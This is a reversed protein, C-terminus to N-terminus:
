QRGRWSALFRPVTPEHRRESDETNLIDSAQEVRDSLAPDNRIFEVTDDGLDSVTAQTKISSDANSDKNEDLVTLKEGAHVEVSELKGQDNRFSAVATGELVVLQSFDGSFDAPLAQNLLERFNENSELLLKNIEEESGDFSTLYVVTGRIGVSMTSTQIDLSENEDLKKQVDLLLRGSALKLTMHNKEQIFNVQTMADLTLIKSADLGVSAMAGVGTNLSEGSNFRINEMLFRANGDEDLIYVEGEYNMLRMINASYSEALAAACVSLLLVAATLIVLCRYRFGTKKM